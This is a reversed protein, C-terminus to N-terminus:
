LNIMGKLEKRSVNRVKNKYLGLNFSLKVCFSSNTIPSADRVIGRHYRWAVDVALSNGTAFFRYEYRLGATPYLYNGWSTIYTQYNGDIVPASDTGYYEFGVGAFPMLRHQDFQDLKVPRCGLVLETRYTNYRKGANVAHETFKSWGYEVNVGVTWWPQSFRVGIGAIPSVLESSVQCGAYINLDWGYKDAAKLVIKGADADDDSVGSLGDVKAYYTDRFRDDYLSEVVRTKLQKEYLQVEEPYSVSVKIVENAMKYRGDSGVFYKSYHYETSNELIDAKTLIRLTDASNQTLHEKISAESWEDTRINMGNVCIIEQANASGAVFALVVILTAKVFFRKM